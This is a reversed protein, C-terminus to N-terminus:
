KMEKAISIIKEIQEKKLTKLADIAENLINPYVTEEDFFEKPSIGLYECIYLFVQMSPMTRGNEIHNIYNESQGINLSMERASDGKATRLLAIRNRIFELDIM